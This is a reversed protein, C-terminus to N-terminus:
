EFLVLSEKILPSCSPCASKVISKAIFSSGEVAIYTQEYSLQTVILLPRKASLSLATEEGFFSHRMMDNVADHSSVPFKQLM